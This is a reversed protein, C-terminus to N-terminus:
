ELVLWGFSVAQRKGLRGSADLKGGCVRAKAADKDKVAYRGWHFEEPIVVEGAANVYVKELLAETSQDTLVETTTASILDSLSFLLSSTLFPTLKM